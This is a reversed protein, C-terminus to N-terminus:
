VPESLSRATVARVPAVFTFICDNNDAEPSPKLISGPLTDLSIQRIMRQVTSQTMFIVRESRFQGAENRSIFEIVIKESRSKNNNNIITLWGPFSSPLAKQVWAPQAATRVFFCPRM